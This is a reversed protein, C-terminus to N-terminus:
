AITNSPVPPAALGTERRIRDVWTSARLRSWVNEETTLPALRERQVAAAAPDRLEGWDDVSWVALGEFLPAIPLHRTVVISGLLLAEWTRHCDIGYGMPSVVFPHRAYHRWVEFQPVRAALFHLHPAGEVTQRITKRDPSNPSLHADCFITAPGQGIPQRDRRITRLAELLGGPTHLGRYSHLDLGIPFPRLKDHRTGDHNQTYWALVRDSALLAAVTEPRLDGPVSADGDTTVVVIPRGLSPLVSRAFVDLDCVEGRRARSSLRLWVLGGADRYHRLFFAEDRVSETRGLAHRRPGAFDCFGPTGKSWVVDPVRAAQLLWQHLKRKM